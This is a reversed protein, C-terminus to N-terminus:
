LTLDPCEVTVQSQQSSILNMFVFNEVRNNRFIVVKEPKQYNFKRPITIFDM